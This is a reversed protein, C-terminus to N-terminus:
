GRLWSGRRGSGGGAVWGGRSQQEQQVPQRATAEPPATSMRHVGRMWACASALAEADLFHNNKGKLEVWKWTERTGVIKRERREGLIQSLYDRTVDGHLRWEGPDGVAVRIHDHVFSKWHSSNVHALKMPVPLRRGNPMRELDAFEVPLTRQEWGKAPWFRGIHRMCYSYVTDTSYGSDIFASAVHFGGYDCLLVDDLFDLLGGDMRPLIGEAVLHSRWQPGWARIVYYVHTKQVDVGGTLAFVNPPVTGRAREHDVCAMLTEDAPKDGRVEWTRALRCNWFVKRADEDGSSARWERALQGFTVWPSYLASWWFGATSSGPNEARWQVSALLAPKDLDTHRHSCHPCVYRAAAEAKDPDSEGGFDVWGRNPEHGGCDPPFFGMAHMHGCAVCAVCPRRQDSKLYEAEIPSAGADTCTSALIVKNNHFTTTRQIALDVPNGEASPPIRDLEDLIVNKMSGSSFANPSNGGRILLNMGPFTKSLVSKRHTRATGAELKARLTPSALLMPELKETSFETAKEETPYVVLTRGPDHGIVWGMFTCIGTTKAAQAPGWLVIRRTERDCLTDQVERLLPFRDTRFPGPEADAPPLVRHADAWESGTMRPPWLWAATVMLLESTKRLRTM